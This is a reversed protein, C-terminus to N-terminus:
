VAFPVGYPFRVRRQHSFVVRVSGIYSRPSFPAELSYRVRTKVKLPHYGPGSSSPPLHSVSAETADGAPNSGADLGHFPRM